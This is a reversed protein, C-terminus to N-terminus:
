WITRVGYAAFWGDSSVLAADEMLGQAVITRDWPDRHHPPLRGAQITHRADLALWEFKENVVAKELDWPVASLVSDRSRKFEIEYGSVASVLVRNDGNSIAAHAKPSLREPFVLWWVLTHTDLLLKM